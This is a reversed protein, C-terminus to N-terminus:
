LTRPLDLASYDKRLEASFCFAVTASVRLASHCRMRFGNIEGFQERSIMAAVFSLARKATVGTVAVTERGAYPRNVEWLPSMCGDSDQILRM